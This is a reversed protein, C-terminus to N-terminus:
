AQLPTKFANQPPSSSASQGRLANCHTTLADLLGLLPQLRVDLEARLTVQMDHEFLNLWMAPQGNSTPNTDQQRLQAFRKELLLPVSALLKQERSGLSRDMVADLMALQALPASTQTLVRRLQIRLGSIGQAMRRQQDLYRQHYLPFTVDVGDGVLVTATNPFTPPIIPVAVASLRNHPTKTHLTRTASSGSVGVNKGQFGALLDVRVRQVAAELEGKAQEVQTAHAQLTQTGAISHMAQHTSHVSMADAVNLWHAMQEAFDQRSAKAEM